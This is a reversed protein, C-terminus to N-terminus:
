KSHQMLVWDKYDKNEIKSSIWGPINFYSFIMQINSQKDFENMFQHIQQLIKTKEHQNKAYFLKSFYVLLKREFSDATRHKSFYAYSNKYQIEFLYHNNWEFCIILIFLYGFSYLEIRTEDNFLLLANRIFHFAEDYNKLVFYSIGVSLLLTRNVETNIHESWSPLQKNISELIAVVKDYQGTRNYLRNLALHQITQIYSVYSPFLIKNSAPMNMFYAIQSLDNALVAAYYYIYLVEIYYEPYNEIFFAKDHWATINKLAYKYCIPDKLLFYLIANIMLYYHNILFSSSNPAQTLLSTNLIDDILQRNEKSIHFHSAKRILVSKIYLDQLQLYVIYQNAQELSLQLTENLSSLKIKQIDYMQIKAYEEKLQIILSFIEYQVATQYAKEWHKLALKYLRKSRLIKIITVEDYIQSGILHEGSNLILAKCLEDYLYKKTIALNKAHLIPHLEKLIREENYNDYKCIQDFLQVFLPSAQQDTATKIYNRKFYRKEQSSMQNILQWIPPTAM